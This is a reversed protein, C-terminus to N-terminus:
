KNKQLDNLQFQQNASENLKNLFDSSLSPLSDIEAELQRLQMEIQEWEGMMKANEASLERRFQLSLSLSDKNEPSAGNRLNMGSGEWRRIGKELGDYEEGEPTMEKREKTGSSDPSYVLLPKKQRKKLDRTSSLGEIHENIENLIKMSHDLTSAM